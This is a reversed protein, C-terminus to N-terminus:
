ALQETGNHWIAWNPMRALAEASESLWRAQLTAAAMWLTSQLTLAQTALEWPVSPLWPWAPMAAPWEYPAGPGAPATWTTTM